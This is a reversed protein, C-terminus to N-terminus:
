KIFDKSTKLFAYSLKFGTLVAAPMANSTQLIIAPVAKSIHSALQAPKM